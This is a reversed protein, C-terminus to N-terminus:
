LRKNSHNDARAKSSAPNLVFCARFIRIPLWQNLWVSMNVPKLTCKLTMPVHNLALILTAFIVSFTCQCQAEHQRNLSRWRETYEPVATDHEVTLDMTVATQM